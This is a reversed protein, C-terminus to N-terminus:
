LHKLAERVSLPALRTSAVFEKVAKPDTRAYQRLAWGIGKRIFFDPHDSLKSINGFLINTNTKEKYQLQFILATRQLWLENSRMYRDNVQRINAPHRQLIVGVGHVAIHDVTDWWSHDLIMFEALPLFDRGLKKAGHTFIEMGAYHFERQPQAWASRVVEELEEVPPRGHEKFFQQMLSRRQDTKLGYFRFKNKMYAAQAVAVEPDAHSEFLQQLPRLYPHPRTSM